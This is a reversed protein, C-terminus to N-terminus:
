DPRFPGVSPVGGILLSMQRSFFMDFDSQVPFSLAIFLNGASPVFSRLFISAM